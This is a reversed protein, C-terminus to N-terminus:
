IQNFFYLFINKGCIKIKKMLKNKEGVFYWRRGVVIKFAKSFSLNRNFNRNGPLSAIADALLTGPLFLFFINISINPLFQFHQIFVYSEKTEKEIDRGSGSDRERERVCVGLCVCEREREGTLSAGLFM